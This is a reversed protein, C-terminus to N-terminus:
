MTCKLVTTIWADLSVALLITSELVESEGERGRDGDEGRHGRQRTKARM